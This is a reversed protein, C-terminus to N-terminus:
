IFISIKGPIDVGEQIFPVYDSSGDFPVRQNDLGLISYFLSVPINGLWQAIFIILMCASHFQSTCSM